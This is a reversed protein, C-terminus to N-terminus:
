AGKMLEQYDFNKGLAEEITTRTDSFRLVKNNYLFVHSPVDIKKYVFEIGDPTARWIGSNKAKASTSPQQEVLGWHALKGHENSRLVYKPAKKAVEIWEYSDTSRVIWVLTRAMGSNLKRKYIKVYQSCCPCVAGEQANKILWEKAEKITTTPKM